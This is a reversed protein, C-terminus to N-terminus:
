DPPTRATLADGPLLELSRGAVFFFGLHLWEVHLVASGKQHMRRRAKKQDRSSGDDHDPASTDARPSIGGPHSLHQFATGVQPPPIQQAWIYRLSKSLGEEWLDRDQPVEGSVTPVLSDVFENKKLSWVKFISVSKVINCMCGKTPGGCRWANKRQAEKRSFYSTMSNRGSKSREVTTKRKTSSISSKVLKWLLLITQYVEGTANALVSVMQTNFESRLESTYDQHHQQVQIDFAQRFEQERECELECM